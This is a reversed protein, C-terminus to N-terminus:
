KAFSFYMINHVLVYSCAIYSCHAVYSTDIIENPSESANLTPVKKNFQNNPIALLYEPSKSILPTEFDFDENRLNQNQFM